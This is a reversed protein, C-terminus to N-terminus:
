LCLITSSAVLISMGIVHHIRLKYGNIFYDFLAMNIPEIGLMAQIVGPDINAEITFFVTSLSVVSVCLYAVSFLM